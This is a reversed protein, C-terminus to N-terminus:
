FARQAHAIRWMRLIPLLVRTLSGGADTLSASPQRLGSSRASDKSLYMAVMCAVILAHREGHPLALADYLSRQILKELRSVAVASTPYHTIYSHDGSAQDELRDVYSDLMTGMVSVVEAYVGGVVPVDVEVSTPEAALALLAHIALSSSGGAALEFWTKDARGRRAGNCWERLAADRDAAVGIHNLALVRFGLAERLVLGYVHKYGPLLVCARRCVDVLACLYGGDDHWPHHAYYDSKPRSLDLADVLAIHLQAGNEPSSNSSRENVSDLFDFMIQYAVLLRLLSESRRHPLITFLAAGDIHGRKRMISDLADRRIPRDPIARAREQWALVQRATIRSAWM